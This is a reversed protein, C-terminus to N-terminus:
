IVCGVESEFHRICQKILDKSEAKAKQHTKQYEPIRHTSLSLDMIKAFRYLSYATLGNNFKIKKIEKSSLGSSLVSEHFAYLRSLSKWGVLGFLKGVSQKKSKNKVLPALLSPVEMGTQKFLEDIFKELQKETNIGTARVMLEPEEITSSIVIANQFLRVTKERVIDILAPPIYHEILVKESNGIKKCAKKVSGTKHWELVAITARIAKFSVTGKGLGCTKLSPFFDSLDKQVASKSNDKYGLIWNIIRSSSPVTFQSNSRDLCLFVFDSEIGDQRFSENNSQIRTLFEFVEKSIPDLIETQIKKGRKKDVKFSIDQDDNEEALVLAGSKDVFKSFLLPEYNFKPCKILVLAVLYAIDRTKLNGLCWNIRDAYPILEIKPIFNLTRESTNDFPNFGYKKIQSSITANPFYPKSKVTPSYYSHDVEKCLYLLNALNEYSKITCIHTRRPPLGAEKEFFYYKNQDKRLMRENLQKKDAKELLDSGFDFYAKVTKWYRELARELSNLKTDLDFIFDDLYEQTTQSPDVTSILKKLNNSSVEISSNNEVLQKSNDGLVKEDEDKECLSNAPVKNILVSEPILGKIQLYNLFLIFNKNWNILRTNLKAKSSEDKLFYFFLDNIYEQWKNPESHSPPILGVEFGVEFIRTIKRVKTPLTRPNDNLCYLRLNHVIEKGRELRMINRLGVYSPKGSQNTYWFVNKELDLRIMLVEQFSLICLWFCYTM